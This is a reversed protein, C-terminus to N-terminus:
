KKYGKAGATCVGLSGQSDCGSVTAEVTWDQNATECTTALDNPPPQGKGAWELHYTLWLTWGAPVTVCELTDDAGSPIGDNVADFNAWSLDPFSPFLLAHIAQAGQPNVGDRVLDVRVTQDSGTNNTWLVNYYFQGPDTAQMRRNQPPGGVIIGFRGDTGSTVQNGACDLLFNFDGDTIFCSISEGSTVRIHITGPLGSVSTNSPNSDKVRVNVNYAYEGAALPGTDLYIYGTVCGDTGSSFATFSGLTVGPLNGGIGVPRFEVEISSWGSRVTTICVEIPLTDSISSNPSIAYAYFWSDAQGMQDPVVGGTSELATVTASVQPPLGPPPASIAPLALLLITLTTILLKGKM